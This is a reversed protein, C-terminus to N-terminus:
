RWPWRSSTAATAASRPWCTAPSVPRTCGCWRSRGRPGSRGVRDGDAAARRVERRLRHDPRPRLPHAPRGRGAPLRAERQPPPLPDAGRHHHDGPPVARGLAYLESAPPGIATQRRPNRMLVGAPKLGAMRALDVACETHGARRLVGGEKAVLPFLHGPRVFDAPQSTPSRSDGPDHPGAGARHDGTDARAIISRCPSPRACRAGHQRSWRRCISGTPLGRAPDAHLAAGPRPYDHLQRDGADGKRGRLHFRGRERPGRRGHRHRGRRAAIAEVAAEITSLRHSM